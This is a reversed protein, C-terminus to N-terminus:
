SGQRKFRCIFHIIKKKCFSFCWFHRNFTLIMCPTQYEGHTKVDGQLLCQFCWLVPSIWSKKYELQLNGDDTNRPCPSPSPPPASSGPSNWIGVRLQFIRTSVMRVNLPNCVSSRLMWKLLSDTTNIQISPSIYCM